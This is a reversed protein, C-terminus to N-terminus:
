VSWAVPKHNEQKETGPESESNVLLQDNVKTKWGRLQGKYQDCAGLFNGPPWQCSRGRARPQAGSLVSDSFLSSRAPPLVCVRRPTVLCVARAPCALLTQTPPTCPLGGSPQPAEFPGLEPDTVGNGAVPGM